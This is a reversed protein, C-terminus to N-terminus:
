STVGIDGTDLSVIQRTSIAINITGAPPTVTDINFTTVDIVGTVALAIAKFELAIVDDGTFLTDAFAVAAAKVQEDGDAPYAVPDVTLIYSLYLRIEAPRSYGINHSFGMSDVITGSLLGYPMIGAPKKDWITDIIDQELGGLVVAEFSKPPLGNADVVMTTNELVIVNEVDGVLSLAAYIAEVTASGTSRLVQERRIRFDPDTELLRGPDADSSNFGKIKGIPLGLIAVADGALVEIASGDGDTDSTIRLRGLGDDYADIGVTNNKIETATAAASWPNGGSFVLSQTSGEDVKLNLTKTDLLFNEIVIGSVAAKANWGSIPTQIESVTEAYGQISGYDESEAMVSFTAIAGTTNSVAVLTVFRPGTLGVSVIRGAPITVGNDIFLQDLTVTSKTQSLRTVGTFSGVQDLSEYSASDPYFARYVALEVDWIERLKDSFVGIIQGLVATDLLNLENSIDSLLDDGIEQKIVTLTKKVFGEPTVGYDTM